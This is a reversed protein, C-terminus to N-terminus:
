SREKTLVREGERKSSSVLEEGLGLNQPSREVECLSLSRSGDDIYGNSCRMIWSNDRIRSSDFGEVHTDHGLFV